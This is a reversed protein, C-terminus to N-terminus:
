LSYGYSELYGYGYVIGTIGCSGGYINHVGVDIKVYVYSYESLASVPTFQYGYYSVKNGDILISATDATTAIINVYNYDISDYPSAYFTVQEITQGLPNSLIMSPDGLTNNSACASGTIFQAVMIPMDALIYAADNYESYEYFEGKNLMSVFAGDVYVNTNDESALVRVIDFQNPRGKTRSLVYKKGWTSVPYMEEYINDLAKCGGIETWRDGAFLAFPKDSTIYSGTLDGGIGALSQVEYTQGQSLLVFFIFIFTVSSM